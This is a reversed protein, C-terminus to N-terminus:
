SMDKSVKMQESTEFERKAAAILMDQTIEKTGSVVARRAAKLLANKIQGGTLVFQALVDVDPLETIDFPVTNAIYSNGFTEKEKITAWCFALKDKPIIKQEKKAM